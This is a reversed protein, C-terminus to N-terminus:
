EEDESEFEEESLGESRRAAPAATEYEGDSEPEIESEDGSDDAGAIIAALRDQLGVPEARFMQEASEAELPNGHTECVECPGAPKEDLPHTHVPEAAKPPKAAKPAKPPKPKPAETAKAAAELHRKCYCEGKLASFKCPEKKATTGQCAQKEAKAKPAKEKPAEGETVVTVSKPERKKYKKPVKIASEAATLYKAELEKFDLNYDAAVKELFVRDRERVLADCALAFTSAM